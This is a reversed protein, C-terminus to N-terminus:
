SHGGHYHTIWVAAAAVIIAAIVREIWVLTSLKPDNLRGLSGSFFVAHGLSSSNALGWNLLSPQGIEDWLAPYSRQLRKAILLAGSFYTIVLISTFLSFMQLNPM